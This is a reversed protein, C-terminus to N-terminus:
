CIFLVHRHTDPLDHCSAGKPEGDALQDAVQWRSTIGTPHEANLRTAAEEDTLSTCAAAHVLGVSYVRFDYSSPDGM